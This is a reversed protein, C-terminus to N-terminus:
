RWSVRPFIALGDDNIELRYRDRMQLTEKKGFLDSNSDRKIMKHPSSNFFTIFSTEKMLRSYIELVLFFPAHDLFFIRAFSLSLSLSLFYTHTHSLSFVSNDELFLLSDEIADADTKWSPGAIETFTGGLVCGPTNVTRSTTDLCTPDWSPEFGLSPQSEGSSKWRM